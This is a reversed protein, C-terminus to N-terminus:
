KLYEEVSQWKGDIQVDIDVDDPDVEGDEIHEHDVWYDNVQDSKRDNRMELLQRIDSKSMEVERHYRVREQLHIRVLPM